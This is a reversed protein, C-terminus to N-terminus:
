DDPLSNIWGEETEGVDQFAMTRFQATFPKKEHVDNHCARCLGVGNKVGGGPGLEEIETPSLASKPKRHHVDPYQMSNDVNSRFCM